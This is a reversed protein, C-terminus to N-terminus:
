YLQLSQRHKKFTISPLNKTFIDAVMESTAKRELVVQKKHIIDKIFHYKIEIHKVGPHKRQGNAITVCSDNDQFIVSAKEQPFGCEFLLNRCFVLEKVASGLAVYEAETSSLAVSTQLKSSWVIPSNNLYIVLGSRSKRGDVEGAWDADAYGTLEFSQNIGGLKLSMSRTGQIYKLIQLVAKWHESNPNQSYKSVQSVATSIDPRTNISIYILQGIISKYPTNEALKVEDNSDTITRSLKVQPNAPIKATQTIYRRDLESLQTDQLIKQIKSPQSLTISREKRNRHFQINLFKNIPGKDTM